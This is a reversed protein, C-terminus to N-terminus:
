SERMARGCELRLGPRKSCPKPCHSPRRCICILGMTGLAVPELNHAKRSSLVMKRSTTWADCAAHQGKECCNKDDVNLAMGYLCGDIAPTGRRFTALRPASGKEPGVVGVADGCFSLEGAAVGLYAPWMSWVPAAGM